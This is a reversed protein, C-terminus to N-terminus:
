EILGPDGRFGCAYSCDVFQQCSAFNLANSFPHFAFFVSVKYPLGRALVNLGNLGGLKLSNKVPQPSLARTDM